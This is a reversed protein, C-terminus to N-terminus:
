VQKLPIFLVLAGGSALKTVCPQLAPWTGGTTISERKAEIPPLAAISHSDEDELMNQLPTLFQSEVLVPFRERFKRNCAAIRKDAGIYIVPDPLSEFLNEFDVDQALLPKSRLNLISPM